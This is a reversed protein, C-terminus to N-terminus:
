SVVGGPAVAKLLNTMRSPLDRVAATAGSARGAGTPRGETPVLMGSVAGPRLHLGRGGVARPPRVVDQARAFSMREVEIEVGFTQDRLDGPAAEMATQRARRTEHAKRAAANAGTETAALGGDAIQRCPTPFMRYELTKHELLMCEVAAAHAARGGVTREM